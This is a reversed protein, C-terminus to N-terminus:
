DRMTPSTLAPLGRAASGLIRAPCLAPAEGALAPVAEVRRHPLEMVARPPLQFGRCLRPDSVVIMIYRLGRRHFDRVMEPYDRFSRKNFTFDRKADAYDLDNWQVDQPCHRWHKPVLLSGWRM